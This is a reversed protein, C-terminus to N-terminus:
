NGGSVRLAADIQHYCVCEFHGNYAAGEQKGHVPNESSDIDLIIRRHVIKAVACNVWEVNLLELGNLNEKQAVHTILSNCKSRHTLVDVVLVGSGVDGM